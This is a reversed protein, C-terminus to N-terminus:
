GAGEDKGSAKKWVVFLDDLGCDCKPTEDIPLAQYWKGAFQMRYGGDATPEGASNRNRICHDEHTLYESMAEIAELRALLANIWNIPVFCCDGDKSSQIPYICEKLRALDKDTFRPGNPSDSFSM